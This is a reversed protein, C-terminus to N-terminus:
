SFRPQLPRHSLYIVVSYEYVTNLAYEIVERVSFNNLKDMLDGHTLPESLRVDKATADEDGIDKLDEM